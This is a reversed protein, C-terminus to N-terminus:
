FQPWYVPNVLCTVNHFLMSTFYKGQFDQMAIYHGHTDCYTEYSCAGEPVHDEAGMDLICKM